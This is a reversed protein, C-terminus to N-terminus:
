LFVLPMVLKFIIWCMFTLEVAHCNCGIASGKKKQEIVHYNFIVYSKCDSSACHKKDVFKGAQTIPITQSMTLQYAESKSYTNWASIRFFQWEKAGFPLIQNWEPDYTNGKRSTQQIHKKGQSDVAQVIIYPNPPEQDNVSPVFNGRVVKVYLNARIGHGPCSYLRKAQEVDPESLSIRQGIDPEGQRAYADKNKVTIVFCKKKRCTRPHKSFTLRHYHMISAFNYQTGQYDIMNPKQKIFNILMQKHINTRNITIYNDRDPRSQEHWFGITHGIEHVLYGSASCGGVGVKQRGGIRGVSSWCGQENVFEVYDDQHKYPVFRICTYKQWTKIANNIFGVKTSPVKKSITYPIKKNEWIGVYKNYVAKAGIEFRGDGGFADSLESEASEVYKRKIVPGFPVSEFNYHSLILEPTVKMDNEFLYDKHFLGKQWEGSDVEVDYPDDNWIYDEDGYYDDGGHFDDGFDDGYDDDNDDYWFNRNAESTSLPVSLIRLIASVSLLYTQLLRRQLLWCHFIGQVITDRTM